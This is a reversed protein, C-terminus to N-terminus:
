GMVRLTLINKRCKTLKAPAGKFRKNRQAEATHCKAVACISIPFFLYFPEPALFLHALKTKGM